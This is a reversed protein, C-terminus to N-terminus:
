RSCVVVVAICSLPPHLYMSILARLSTRALSGSQWHLQWMTPFIGIFPSFFQSLPHNFRQGGVGECYYVHKVM